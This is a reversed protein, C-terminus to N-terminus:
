RWPTTPHPDLHSKWFEIVMKALSLVDIQPAHGTITVNGLDVVLSDRFYGEAFYGSPFLDGLYSARGTASGSEKVREDSPRFHKAGVALYECVRLIPNADRISARKKKNVDDPYVWELLHWATVFFDYAVCSDIPAKSLREFDAELKKFLDEKTRLEFIGSM